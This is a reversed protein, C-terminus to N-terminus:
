QFSNNWETFYILYYGGTEQLMQNTITIHSIKDKLSRDCVHGHYSLNLNYGVFDFYVFDTGM